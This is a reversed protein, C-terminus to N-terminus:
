GHAAPGTPRRVSRTVLFSRDRAEIRTRGIARNLWQLYPLHANFVVWLEGGPALAAGAQNILRRTPETDKATGDHFPPNMVILDLPETWGALGDRRLVDIRLENASATLRAADAGSWTVDIATVPRGQLALAAALIGSGCGLDVASVDAPLRDFQDLLLATGRDLRNTSFTAGHALVDIELAELHATRPWTIPGPNAGEALLARAKRHGRSARVSTFHRALAENMSRSLHKDRGCAVVRVDSAAHHAILGAYEEVAGVSKPLRWLVTRADRVAEAPTPFAEAPVNTRPSIGADAPIVASEDDRAQGPIGRTGSRLALAEDRVDDCWVRPRHGQAILAATLSGDADDLVAVTGDLAGAEMLLLEDVPDGPSRDDQEAGRVRDPFWM